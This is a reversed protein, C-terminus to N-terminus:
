RDGAHAKRVRKAKSVLGNWDARSKWAKSPEIGQLLVAELLQKQRFNLRQILEPLFSRLDDHLRGSDLVEIINFEPDDRDESFEGDCDINSRIDRGSNSKIDCDTNLAMQDREAASHGHATLGHPLGEDREELDRTKWEIGQRVYSRTCGVLKSIDRGADRVVKEWLAILRTETPKLNLVQRLVSKAAQGSPSSDDLAAGISFLLVLVHL